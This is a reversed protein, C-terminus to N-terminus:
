LLTMQQNLNNNTLQKSTLYLEFRKTYIDAAIRLYVGKNFNPKRREKKLVSDLHKTLHKCKMVYSLKEEFTM